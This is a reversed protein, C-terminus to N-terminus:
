SVLRMAIVVAVYGGASLHLITPLQIDLKTKQNNIPLTHPILGQVSHIINNRHVKCAQKVAEGNVGESIARVVLHM